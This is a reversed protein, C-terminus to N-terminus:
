RRIGKGPIRTIGATPTVLWRRAHSPIEFGLGLWTSIGHQSAVAFACQAGREFGWILSRRMLVSALGSRRAIPDTAAWELGLCGQAVFASMAARVAGDANSRALVVLIDPDRMSNISFLMSEVLAPDADGLAYNRALVNLYERRDTDDQAVSITYGAPDATDPLPETRLVCPSGEAPPRLFCGRRQAAADLDVDAERETWLYYQRALTGFFADARALLEGASIRPSTRFVGNLHMGPYYHAGAFFVYDETEEIRGGSSHATIHRCYAAQNRIGRRVAESTDM